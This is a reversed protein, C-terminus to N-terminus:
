NSLPTIKLKKENWGKDGIYYGGWREFFTERAEKSSYAEITVKIFTHDGIGEIYYKKLTKEQKKKM